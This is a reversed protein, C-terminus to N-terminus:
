SSTTGTEQGPTADTIPLGAKELAQKAEDMRNLAKLAEARRGWAKAWQPRVALCADASALAGAADGLKLKCASANAYIQSKLEQNSEGRGDLVLALAQRYRWIAERILGRKYFENGNEKYQKAVKEIGAADTLRLAKALDMWNPDTQANSVTKWDDSLDALTFDLRYFGEDNDFQRCLFVDGRVQLTLGCRACISNVRPNLPLNKSVGKDDVVLNVAIFHTQKTHPLLPVVECMTLDALKQVLESTASAHEQKLKHQFEKLGEGTLKTQAFRTKAHDLMASLARDATQVIVEEQLPQNVDAPIFVCKFSRFPTSDVAKQAQLPVIVDMIPKSFTKHVNEHM